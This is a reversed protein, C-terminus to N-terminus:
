SQYSVVVYLTDDKIDTIAYRIVNLNNAKFWDEMFEFTPKKCKIEFNETKIEM